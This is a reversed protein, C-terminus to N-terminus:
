GAVAPDLPTVAIFVKSMLVARAATSKSGPPPALAAMM